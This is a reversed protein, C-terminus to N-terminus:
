STQRVPIMRRLFAFADRATDGFDVGVGGGDKRAIVGELEVPIGADRGGLFLRVRCDTGVLLPVDTELFIGHLSLNRTEGVVELGDETVIEVRM